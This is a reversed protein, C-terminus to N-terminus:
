HDHRSLTEFADSRSEAVMKLEDSERDIVVFRGDGKGICRKPCRCSAYGHVDVHEVDKKQKVGEVIARYATGGREVESM